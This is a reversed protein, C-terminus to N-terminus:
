RREGELRVLYQEGLEATERAMYFVGPPGFATPFGPPNILRRSEGSALSVVFVEFEERSETWARLWVHGDPDVILGRWRRLLTPERPKSMERGGLSIVSFDSRLEGFEPVEWEPLAISDTRLTSLDVVWLFQRGGDSVVICDKHRAWYPRAERKHSNLFRDYPTRTFVIREWLLERRDPEPRRVKWLQLRRSGADLSDVGFVVEDQDMPAVFQVGEVFVTRTPVLTSWRFAGGADFSAIDNRDYVVLNRGDFAVHGEAIDNVWSM